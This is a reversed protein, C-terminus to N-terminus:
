NDLFQNELSLGAQFSDQVEPNKSVPQPQETPLTEAHIGWGREDSKLFSISLHLGPGTVAYVPGPSIGTCSYNM